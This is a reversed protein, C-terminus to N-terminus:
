RRRVRKLSRVHVGVGDMGVVFVGWEWLYLTYNQPYISDLLSLLSGLLITCSQSPDLMFVWMRGMGVSRERVQVWTRQNKSSSLGWLDRVQNPTVMHIYQIQSSEEVTLYLVTMTMYKNNFLLALSLSFALASPDVCRVSLSSTMMPSGVQPLPFSLFFVCSSCAPTVCLSAYFEDWRLQGTTKHHCFFSSLHGRGQRM